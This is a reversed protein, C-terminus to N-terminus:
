SNHIRSIIEGMGLFVVNPEIILHKAIAPFQLQLYDFLIQRDGGTIVVQGRPFDRWWAEVFDRIGAIITYIVGSQIGEQTNEAFRPPLQQPFHVHPLQGTKETLTAFQLGLGPLIAGGVLSHNTDAGTFTLATGADIVLVPFGCTIGAGWLALARDIGLTSYLGQLPIHDLTIMCVNAYNQWLETQSPVVSALFLSHSLHPIPSHLSFIRSLLEDVASSQALQHIVSPTVYDTDRTLELNKNTFLGWHLRSNGIMLALYTEVSAAM